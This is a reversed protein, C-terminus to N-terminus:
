MKGPSCKPCPCSILCYNNRLHPPKKNEEAFYADILCNEELDEREKQFYSRLNKIQEVAKAGEKEAEKIIEEIFDKFKTM